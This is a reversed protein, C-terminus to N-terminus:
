CIHPYEARSVEEDTQCILVRPGKATCQRSEMKQSVDTVACGDALGKSNEEPGIAFGLCRCKEVVKERLLASKEGIGGAFVLADVHGDLKM